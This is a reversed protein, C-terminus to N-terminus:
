QAVPWGSETWELLQIRLTPAGGNETDYAHYVILYTDEVQLIAPHGPGVFRGSPDLDAHLVPLGGDRMLSREPGEYPGTPNESRGVVTFYTSDARRCCFDKSVFMYYYAGRKVIFPAEIANPPAGRSAIDYVKPRSALPKGTKADLEVMKIGSWFSGFSMWHRGEDDIVINPDIANYDDSFKSSFVMGQDQWVNEAEPDLTTATALGIASTNKGFSSISYYLRYEDSAKIIDPAWIGRTDPNFELAWAPMEKFVAGRLSWDTLDTSTRWHILGPEEGVQSTSFLHAGREDLIIAPDHVPVVNGSVPLGSSQAAGEETAASPVLLFVSALVLLATLTSNM